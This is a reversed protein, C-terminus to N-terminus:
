SLDSITPLASMGAGVACVARTRLVDQVSLLSYLPSLFYETRMSTSSGLGVQLPDIWKSLQSNTIVTKIM